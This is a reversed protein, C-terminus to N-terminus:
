IAADAVKGKLFVSPEVEPGEYVEPRFLELTAVARELTAMRLSFTDDDSRITLKYSGDSNKTISRDWAVPEYVASTALKKQFVKM